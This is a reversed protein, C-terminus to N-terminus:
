QEIARLRDDSPMSQLLFRLVQICYFLQVISCHELDEKLIM